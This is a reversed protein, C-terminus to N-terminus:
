KGSKGDRLPVEPLFLNLLLTLVIFSAYIYLVQSTATQLNGVKLLCLMLASMLGTGITGGLSRFFQTMSTAVGMIESPVIKQIIITHVPLLLGLGVGGLAAAALLASLSNEASVQNLGAQVAQVQVGILATGLALLTLGSLILLKYRGSKSLILGGAISAGAVVIMLPTLTVGTATASRLLLQQLITALLLMSGFLGIGTIFVTTLSIAILRDKFITLPILPEIAKEECRIFLYFALLAGGLEVAASPSFHGLRGIEAAGLIVPVITLVFFVIGKYDIIARALKRTTLPFSLYLFLAAIASLPINMYFVLRWSSKDAIFGGLVPGVLAAVIFAAALFGQYKGREAVPFVEGISVFCLGLMAGGALGQLARALILQDIADLGFLVPISGAAGCLTSAAAFLLIAALLVNKVGYIDALKGALPTAITSFLLYATIIWASKDVANLAAAIKPIAINLVTQDLASLLIAIQLAICVGAINKKAPALSNQPQLDLSQESM